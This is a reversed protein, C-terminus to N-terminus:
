RMTHAVPALYQPSGLANPAKFGISFLLHTPMFYRIAALGCQPKRKASPSSPRETPKKTKVAWGRVAARHRKRPQGAPTEGVEALRRFLASKAPNEARSFNKM